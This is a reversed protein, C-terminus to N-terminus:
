CELPSAFTPLAREGGVALWAALITYISTCLLIRTNQSEVSFYFIHLKEGGDKSEDVGVSEILSKGDDGAM